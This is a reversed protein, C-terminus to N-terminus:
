QEDMFVEDSFYDNLFLPFASLISVSSKPMIYNEVEAAFITRQDIITKGVSARTEGVINCAKSLNQEKLIIWNNKIGRVEEETLCKHQVIFDLNGYGSFEHAIKKFDVCRDLPITYELYNEDPLKKTYRIAEVMPYNIYLKGHNTEDDFFDLLEGLNKNFEVLANENHVDIQQCDYDFFLFVQAFDSAKDDDSFFGDNRNKFKERLVSVIDLEFETSCMRRYLDLFSTGYICVIQETEKFFVSELTKLIDPERQSGEFVFLTKM